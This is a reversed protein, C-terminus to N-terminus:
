NALGLMNYYLYFGCYALLPAFAKAQAAYAWIFEKYMCKRLLRFISCSLRNRRSLEAANMTFDIMGCTTILVMLPGEL